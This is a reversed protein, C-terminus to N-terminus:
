ASPAAPTATVADVTDLVRAGLVQAPQRGLEAPLRAVGAVDLDEVRHGADDGLVLVDVRVDIEVRARRVLRHPDRRILERRDERDAPHGPPDRVHHLLVGVVSQDTRARFVGAGGVGCVDRDVAALSATRAAGRTLRTSHTKLPSSSVRAHRSLRRAVVSGNRRTTMSLPEVSPVGSNKPCKGYGYGNVNARLGALSPTIAASLRAQRSASVSTRQKRWLSVSSQSGAHSARSRPASASGPAPSAPTYPALRSRASPRAIPRVITELRRGAGVTGAGHSSTANTSETQMHRGRSRM